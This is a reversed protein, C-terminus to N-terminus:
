RFDLDKNNKTSKVGLGALGQCQGFAILVYLLARFTLLTYFM